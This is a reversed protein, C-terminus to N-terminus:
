KVPKYRLKYGHDNYIAGDKYLTLSVVNEKSIEFHLEYGYSGIVNFDVNVTTTLAVSKPIYVFGLDYYSASIGTTEKLLQIHYTKDVQLGNVVTGTNFDIAESWTSNTIDTTDAKSATTAQKALKVMGSTLEGTDEDFYEFISTLTFGKISGSLDKATNATGATEAYDAETFRYNEDYVFYMVDDEYETLKDYEEKTLYIFRAPIDERAVVERKCGAACYGYVKPM